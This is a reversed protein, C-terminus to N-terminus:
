NLPLQQEPRSPEFGLEAMCADYDARALQASKMLFQESQEITLCAFTRKIIQESLMEFDITHIEAAEDHRQTFLYKGDKSFTANPELVDEAFEIKPGCM